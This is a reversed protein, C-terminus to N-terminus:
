RSMGFLFGLIFVLVLGLAVAVQTFTCIVTIRASHLEGMRINYALLYDGAAKVKSQAPLLEQEYRILAEQHKGADAL